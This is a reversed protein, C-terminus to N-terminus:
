LQCLQQRFLCLVERGQTHVWDNGRVIPLSQTAIGAPVIAKQFHVGRVHSPTALSEGGESRKPLGEYSNLFVMQSWRILPLDNINLAFNRVSNNASTWEKHGQAYNWTGESPHGLYPTHCQFSFWREDLRWLLALFSVEGEFRWLLIAM